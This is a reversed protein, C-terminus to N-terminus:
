YYFFVLDSNLDFIDARVVTTHSPLTLKVEKLDLGLVHGRPGTLEAAYKLWSGPACGLDLVRNGPHILRYRKQIEKLKYVSRAPYNDKRAKRTYHDAWRNRSSPKTKKRPM